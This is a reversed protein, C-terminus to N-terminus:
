KGRLFKDAVAMYARCTELGYELPTKAWFAAPRTNVRRRAAAHGEEASLGTAEKREADSKLGDPASSSDDLDHERGPRTGQHKKSAGKDRITTQTENPSVPTGSSPSAAAPKSSSGAKPAPKKSADAGGGVHVAVESLTVSPGDGEGVSAKKRDVLDNKSITNTDGPTGSKKKVAPKASPSVGTKKKGGGRSTAASAPRPKGRAPTNGKNKASSKKGAP